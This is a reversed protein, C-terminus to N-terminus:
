GRAIANDSILAADCEANVDGITACNVDYIWFRGRNAKHMGAAFAGVKADDCVRDSLHNFAEVGIRGIQDHLEAGTNAWGMVLDIKRGFDDLLTAREVNLLDVVGAHAGGTIKPAVVGVAGLFSFSAPRQGHNSQM